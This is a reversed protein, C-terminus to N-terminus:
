GYCHKLETHEKYKCKDELYIVITAFLPFFVSRVHVMKVILSNLFLYLKLIFYTLHCTRFDLVIISQVCYQYKLQYLFYIVLLM